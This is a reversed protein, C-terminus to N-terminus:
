AHRRHKSVIAQVAAVVDAVDEDTMLPYIPLSLMRKFERHTVPFDEPRWGYKDRYYAHEHVPIFHVSADVNRAHLEEIFRDRSITLRELKLRLPYLHWAHEVEARASPTQLEEIDGFDHTYKFAIDARRAKLDEHRRLQAIGLAAQLDTFNYKFGAHLVDYRWSGGAYRRWADRNMGHLSWERAVDVLGTTSALVGGEGTTINKTAYLSFCVAHGALGEVTQGVPNGEYRAGFAHAADEVVCLDAERAVEVIATMNCPHGAYHVPMVAAPREPAAETAADSLGAPDLNLTDPEVDVLVPRAGVHEIVHVTSCFTMPSTFVRDGPGIGTAVLALHMAATGSSLALTADAGVEACFQEEFLKTRPGTTIWGSRLASVVEAIEDEGITPRAFPLRSIRGQPSSDSAPTM